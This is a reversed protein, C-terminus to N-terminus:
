QVREKIYHAASEIAGAAIAATQKAAKAAEGLPQHAKDAMDGLVDSASEFGSIIGERGKTYAERVKSRSWTACVPVVFAIGAATLGAGIGILALGVVGNRSQKDM